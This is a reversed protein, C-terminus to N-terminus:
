SLLVLLMLLITHPTDMGDILIGKSCPFEIKATGNSAKTTLQSGEGSEEIHTIPYVEVEYRHMNTLNEKCNLEM